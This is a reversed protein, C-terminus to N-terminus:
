MMLWGDCDKVWLEIMCGDDLLKGCLMFLELDFILCVVCFVFSVFMVDLWECYVFDVFLMVILLGYM